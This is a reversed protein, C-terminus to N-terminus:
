MNEIERNVKEKCTKKYEVQISIQSIYDSSSNTSWYNQLPTIYAQGVTKLFNTRIFANIKDKIASPVNGYTCKAYISLYLGNPKQYANVANRLNQSKTLIRYTEIYQKNLLADADLIFGVLYEEITQGALFQKIHNAVAEVRKKLVANLTIPASAIFNEEPQESILVQNLRVARIRDLQEVRQKLGLQYQRLKVIQRDYDSIKDLYIQKLDDANRCHIYDSIQHLSLDLKRLSIIIELTFYQSLTYYRYGNDGVFAPSFINNNDYYLLIQKSVGALRALEGVTFYKRSNIFM